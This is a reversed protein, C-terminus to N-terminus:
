FGELILSRKYNKHGLNHYLVTKKIKTFFVKNINKSNVLLETKIGVYSQLHCSKDHELKKGTEFKQWSSQLATDSLIPPRLCPYINYM